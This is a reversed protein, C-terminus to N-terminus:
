REGGLGSETLLWASLRDAIDDATGTGAMSGDPLTPPTALALLQELDERQQRSTASGLRGRPADDPRHWLEIRQWPM